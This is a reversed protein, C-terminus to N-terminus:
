ASLGNEAVDKANSLLQYAMDKIAAAPDRKLMYEIDIGQVCGGRVSPANELYELALRRGQAILEARDM